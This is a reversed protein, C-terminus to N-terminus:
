RATKKNSDISPLGMALSMGFAFVCALLVSSVISTSRRSHLRWDEARETGGPVQVDKGLEGEVVITVPANVGVFPTKGSLGSGDLVLREANARAAEADLSSWIKSAGTGLQIRYESSVPEAILVVGRKPEPDGRGTIETKLESITVPREFDIALAGGSVELITLGLLLGPVLVYASIKAREVDSRGKLLEWVAKAEFM